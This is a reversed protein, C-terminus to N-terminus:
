IFARLGKLSLKEIMDSLEQPSEKMGSLLWHQIIAVCGNAYFLYLLEMQEDKVAPIMKKWEAISRDRAINMIRRLFVKDGYDSFLIRCLDSNKHISEFIKLLLGSIAEAKLLSEVSSLIESFLENEIQELLDYPDSFHSYFTGRNIDAKQCIDKITIKEIPHERLLELLSQKLVM